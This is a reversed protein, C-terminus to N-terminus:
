RGFFFNELQGLCDLLFFRIEYGNDNSLTKSITPSFGASVAQSEFDSSTSALCLAPFVVCWWNKGEAEGISVRLSDYIGAPLSFTDYSRAPFSEKALTVSAQLSEGAAYLVDNAIAEIEDLHNQLFVTMEKVDVQEPQNEHLYALVADRVELKRRQDMSSDSNAVVHLRVIGRQLAAKDELLGSVWALIVFLIMMCSLKKM